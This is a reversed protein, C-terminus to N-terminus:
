RMGYKGIAKRMKCINAASAEHCSSELYFGIQFDTLASLDSGHPENSLITCVMSEIQAASM